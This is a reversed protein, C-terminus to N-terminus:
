VNYLVVCRANSQGLKSYVSWEVWVHWFLVAEQLVEVLVKAATDDAAGAGALGGEDGGEEGGGLDELPDEVSDTNM